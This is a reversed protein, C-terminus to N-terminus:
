GDYSRGWYGDCGDGSYHGSQAQTFATPTASTTNVGDAPLAFCFCSVLCTYLPNHDVTVKEVRVVEGGFM